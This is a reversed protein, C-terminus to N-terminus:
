DKFSLNLQKIILLLTLSTKLCFDIFTHDWNKQKIITFDSELIKVGSASVSWETFLSIFVQNKTSGLDMLFM